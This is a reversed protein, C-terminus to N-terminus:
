SARSRPRKVNDLLVGWYYRCYLWGRRLQLLTAEICAAGLERFLARPDSGDPM